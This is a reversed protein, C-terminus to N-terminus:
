KEKVSEIVVWVTSGAYIGDLIKVQARTFARKVINCKTGKATYGIEGNMIMESITGQNDKALATMYRDMADESSCILVDGSGYELTADYTTTSTNGSVSTSSNKSKKVDEEMMDLIDMMEQYHKNCYWETSGSAGIISNTGENKCGDAECSHVYNKEAQPATKNDTNSKSSNGASGNGQVSNEWDLHYIYLTLNSDHIYELAMRVNTSSNDWYVISTDKVDGENDPSGFDDTMGKKITEYEENGYQDFTFKWLIVFTNSEDASPVFRGSYGYLETTDVLQDNVTVKGSSDVDSGLLSEANLINNKDSSVDTNAETPKDKESETKEIEVKPAEKPPAESSIQFRDEEIGDPGWTYCEGSFSRINEPILDPNGKYIDITYIGTSHGPISITYYYDGTNEDNLALTSCVINIKYNNKNKVALRIGTDDLGLYDVDVHDSSFESFLPDLQYEVNETGGIEFDLVDIPAFGSGNDDYLEGTISLLKHEPNNIKGQLFVSLTQGPEISNDDYSYAKVCLGNDAQRPILNRFSFEKRM